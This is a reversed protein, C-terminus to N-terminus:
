KPSLVLVQRENDISWSKSRNLFSQGLLSIGAGSGIHGSVDDLVRGGVKLTRIRFTQALTSVGDANTYAKTGAFDAASVAGAKMLEFVGESSVMVDSAGSDIIFDISIAGNILVPVVVVGNRKRLVVEFPLSGNENAKWGRSLRQAELLNPLSMKGEVVGLAVKASEYNQAAALSLWLYALVQDTQVGEGDWYMTGLEYQAIAAGQDAAKRFWEVASAAERHVGEGNVYMLGLSTQADKDGKEAAARFYLAAVAFDKTVGQGTSYVYGLNSQAQVLGQEAAKRYWEVAKAIDKETGRGTQYLKGLAFQAEALDQAAAKSFWRVAQTQDDEAQSIIGLSFEARPEGQEAAKLYWGVAQSLDRFTAEGFQYSWGLRYQARAHGQEAAKRYWEIAQERDKPLGDGFDYKFGLDYQAEADGKEARARLDTATQAWAVEWVLVFCLPVLFRTPM